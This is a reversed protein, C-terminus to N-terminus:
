PPVQQLAILEGSIQPLPGHANPRIIVKGAQSGDGRPSIQVYGGKVQLALSAFLPERVWGAALGCRGGAWGRHPYQVSRTDYQETAPPTRHGDRTFVFAGFLNDRVNRKQM